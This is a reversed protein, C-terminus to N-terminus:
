YNNNNNICIILLKLEILKIIIKSVLLIKSKSIYIYVEIVKQFLIVQDYDM